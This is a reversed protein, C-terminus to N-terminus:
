HAIMLPTQKLKIDPWAKKRFFALLLPFMLQVEGARRSHRSNSECRDQTWIWDFRSRFIEKEIRLLKSGIDFCGFPMVCPLISLHNGPIFSDLAATFDGGDV